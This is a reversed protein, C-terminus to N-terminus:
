GDGHVIFTKDVSEGLQRTPHARCHFLLASIKHVSDDRASGFCRYNLPEYRQACEVLLHLAFLISVSHHDRLKRHPAGIAPPVLQAVPPQEDADMTM